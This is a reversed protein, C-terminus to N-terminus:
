CSVSTAVVAESVKNAQDRAFASNIMRRCLTAFDIGLAAAAKPLLSTATMGPSTNIELFNFKSRGDLIFDLRGFDRCGCTEFIQESMNQVNRTESKTIPAPVLYETADTTYKHAYDYFGDRPRIEIVPLAHGNLIGVTIERGIICPEIIWNGKGWDKQYRLFDDITYIKTVGISSGRDNPKIVFPGGGFTWLKEFSQGDYICFKATLIGLQEAIDKAKGKDMCIQSARSDSGAFSFNEAELLRQLQGDEGFEGHILPFIIYREPDLNRPLCDEALEFLECEIQGKLVEFVARGSCLSVARESTMKGGSLIAVKKM